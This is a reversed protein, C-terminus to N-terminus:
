SEAGETSAGPVNFTGAVQLVERSHQRKEDDTFIEVGIKLKGQQILATRAARARPETCSSGIIVERWPRGPHENIFTWIALQDQQSSSGGKKAKANEPSMEAVAAPDSWWKGIALNARAGAFGIDGVRCRAVPIRAPKPQGQHTRDLDLFLMTACDYEIDGSEKALGLYATPDDMERLKVLKDESYVSRQTSFVAIVPCDLDQSLIRSKMTLEGVMDKKEGHGRALLQMYDIFIAPSTGHLDRMKQAEYMIMEIPNARDLNDSGILKVRLKKVADAMADRPINGQIGDRWPVGLESAAYRVFLEVRPLETSIHLVPTEKQVHTVLSGIFASKGVSPPGIIGCVQRSAFGGGILIDLDPFGTSFFRTPIFEKQSVEYIWASPAEPELMLRVEDAVVAGAAVDRQPKVRTMVSDIVAKLESDGLPPQCRQQNECHMANALADRGIGTDRLAAGLRYLANNRGGHGIPAREELDKRQIVEKELTAYHRLMPPITAVEAIQIWAYPRGDASRSPPAVVYGKGILDLGPRFNIKQLREGDDVRYYIHVGGGATQAILTEALDKKIEALSEWGKKTQKIGQADVYDNVDVDLVVLGSPECAIGINANPYQFWWNNIVTEDLTADDKGHRVLTALPRKGGPELPFVYWGRQALELAGTHLPSRALPITVPNYTV